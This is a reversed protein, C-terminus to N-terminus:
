FGQRLIQDLEYPAMVALGGRGRELHQLLRELAVALDGVGIAALGRLAGAEGLGRDVADRGEVVVQELRAARAVDADAGPGGAEGGGAVLVDVPDAVPEPELEALAAVVSRHREGLGDAQAEAMGGGRDAVAVHDVGPGPDDLPDERALARLGGLGLPPRHEVLRHQGQGPVPGAELPRERLEGGLLEEVLDLLGVHAPPAARAKGAPRFHANVRAASPSSFNMTALPSSPSGPEYM